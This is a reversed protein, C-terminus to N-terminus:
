AGLPIAAATAHYFVGAAQRIAIDVVVGGRGDLVLYFGGLGQGLLAFSDVSLDVGEQILLRLRPAPNILDLTLRSLTESHNCLRQLSERVDSYM